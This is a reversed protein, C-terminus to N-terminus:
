YLRTGIVADPAALAAAAASVPIGVDSGLVQTATGSSNITRATQIIGSTSRDGAGTDAGGTVGGSNAPLPGGASLNTAAAVLSVDVETRLNHATVIYSFTGVLAAVLVAVAAFAVVFKQRLTM